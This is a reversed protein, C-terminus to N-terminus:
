ARSPSMTTHMSSHTSEYLDVATLLHPFTNITYHQTYDMTLLGGASCYFHLESSVIFAHYLRQCILINGAQTSPQLSTSSHTLSLAQERLRSCPLSSSQLLLLSDCDIYIFIHYIYSVNAAWVVVVLVNEVHQFYQVCNPQKVIRKKNRGAAKM